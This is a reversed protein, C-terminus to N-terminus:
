ATGSPPELLGNRQAWDRLERGSGPRLTMPRLQGDPTLIDLDAVGFVAALDGALQAAVRAIPRVGPALASLDVSLSSAAPRTSDPLVTSNVQFTGSMPDPTGFGDDDLIQVPRNPHILLEAALLAEGAAGADRAHEVLLSTLWLSELALQRLPVGIAVEGPDYNGCPVAGYGAGDDHLEVHLRDSQWDRGRPLIARRVGVTV